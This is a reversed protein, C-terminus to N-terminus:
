TSGRNNPSNSHLPECHVLEQEVKEAWLSNGAVAVVPRHVRTASHQNGGTTGTGKATHLLGSAQKKELM